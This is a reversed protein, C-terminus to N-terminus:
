PGTHTYPAWQSPASPQRARLSRVARHLSAAALEADAPATQERTLHRYFDAALDRARLDSIPWLTGIVHRYGSMHFAATLHVAEDTLEPATRSTECASLFALSANVPHAGIEGVTLPNAAHDSLFLMSASPDAMDAWGHCIFHAIAYQPLAALVGDRVADAGALVSVRGAMAAAVAEAEAMAHRLEATGPAHPVAVILTTGDALPRQAYAHALGHLTIAYSSIVRDLVTRPNAARDPDALDSHRGAAHLPLFALVGVPCWWIRPWAGEAPRATHGLANLVPECIVDWAWDLVARMEANAEARAPADADTEVVTVQATAFRSAQRYAETKTLGPLTVVEAAATAGFRVILAACLDLGACVFVVPGAAASALAGFGPDRPFNLADAILIGRARELLAVARDPQGALIAAAAADGALGSLQGLQHERDPRGLSGPAMQPLLDVAKGMAALADAGGGRDAALYARLQWARIRVEARAGASEAAEALSRDAEALLGADSAPRGRSRLLYGLNFLYEARHPDPGPAAAVARRGAQIADELLQDQGTEEALQGLATALNALRGALDAPGPGPAAAAARHASVAERLPAVDGTALYMGQLATGLNSQRGALEPDGRPTAAVCQRHYRIAEAFDEARETRDARLTLASALASLASGRHPSAPSAAVGAQLLDIAEDLAASRGSREYETLLAIALNHVYGLRDPDDAAAAALAARHAEIAEAVAEDDGSTEALLRLSAGLDSLLAAWEATGDPIDPRAARLLAAAERLCERDGPRQHEALLGRARLVREEPGDGPALGCRQYRELQERVAKPVLRPTDRWVPAFLRVAAAYDAHGTAGPLTGYRLWHFMGLNFAGGVDHEPDALAAFEAALRDAKATRLVGGRRTISAFLM